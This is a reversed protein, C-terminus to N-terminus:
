AVKAKPERAYALCSFSAGPVPSPELGVFDYRKYVPGGMDSADVYAVKGNQDALKCGWEVLMGGIGMKRYEPITGLM